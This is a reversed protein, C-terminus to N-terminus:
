EAIGRYKWFVEEVIEDQIKDIDDFDTEFYLEPITAENMLRTSNVETGIGTTVSIINRRRLTRGNYM